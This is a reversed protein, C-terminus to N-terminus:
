AAQRLPELTIISLLRGNLRAVAAIYDSSSSHVPEIDTEPLEVVHDVRDVLLAWRSGDIRVVLYVPDQGSPGQAQLGTELRLDVLPAVEGQIQVVGALVSDGEPVRTQQRGEEVRDVWELPMACHERGLRFTLLRRTARRVETTKELVTELHNKVLYRRYAAMRAESIVGDLRLLGLMAGGQGILYGEVEQGQEAPQVADQTFSEIGLVKETLLAFRMGRSEVVVMVSQPTPTRAGLLVSLSLGLLPTGRLMVMGAIDASAHPLATLQGVEVIEGVEHLRIAYRESNCQVLMCAFERSSQASLVEDEGASAPVTGLLGGGGSPADRAEIADLSFLATDLLLVPKENWIFEGRVAELTQALESADEGQACWSISDDAVSVKTLVRQVHVVCITGGVQLLMANGQDAPLRQGLGLRLTADMQTVVRGVVNVLGDIYAPAFPLPTVPLPDRVDVVDLAPFSFCQTNLEFIVMDM